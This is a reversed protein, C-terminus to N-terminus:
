VVCGIRGSAPSLNYSQTQWSVPQLKVLTIRLPWISPTASRRLPFVSDRPHAWLVCCASESSIPPPWPACVSHCAVHRRSGEDWILIHDLHGGPRLRDAHDHQVNGASAAAGDPCGCSSGNVGLLSRSAARAAAATPTSPPCGVAVSCSSPSTFSRSNKLSPPLTVTMDHDYCMTQNSRVVRMVPPHTGGTLNSPRGSNSAPIFAVTLVPQHQM